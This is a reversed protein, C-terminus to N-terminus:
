ECDTVQGLSVIGVVSKLDVRAPQPRLDPPKQRSEVFNRILAKILGTRSYGQEECLKDLDKDLDDDLRLTFAPM